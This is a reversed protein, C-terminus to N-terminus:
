GEEEPSRRIPKEEYGSDLRVLIVDKGIKVINRWPIVYENGGGGWLGFRRGGSPVIIAQVRGSVVDLELDHVQGLRRGDSVNVVDKTQFESAKLV